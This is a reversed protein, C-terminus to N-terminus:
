YKTFEGNNNVVGEIREPLSNYLNIYICKDENLIELILNINACFEKNRYNCGNLKRVMIGWINEIPSM